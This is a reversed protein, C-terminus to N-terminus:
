VGICYDSVITNTPGYPVRMAQPIRKEGVVAGPTGQAESMPLFPANRTQPLPQTSM